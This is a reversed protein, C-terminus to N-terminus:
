PSVQELAFLRKLIGEKGGAPYVLREDKFLAVKQDLSRLIEDRIFFFRELDGIFREIGLCCFAAPLVANKHAFGHPYRQRYHCTTGFIRAIVESSMQVFYPIRVVEYEHQTFLRNEEEDLLIRRPQTYHKPDDFQVVLRIQVAHYDPRIRSKIEPIHRNRIFLVGPFIVSLAEGLSDRTLPETM